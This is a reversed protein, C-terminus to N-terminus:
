PLVWRVTVTTHGKGQIRLVIRKWENSPAPPISITVRKPDSAQVMCPVGPLMGTVTGQNASGDQIEILDAGNVEGEWVLTGSSPGQYSPPPHADANPENEKHKEPSSEERERLKQQRALEEQRAQESARAAAQAEERRQAELAAQADSLRQQRALEEQKAQENAREAAQAEERRQAELAAQADSLRQQRALEEQRAQENAREAAQAEERRQAEIAAQADSLRRKELELEAQRQELTQALKAPDPVDGAKPVSVKSTPKNLLNTVFMALPKASAILILVIVAAIGFAIARSTATEPSGAVSVSIERERRARDKKDLVRESDAVAKHLVPRRPPDSDFDEPRIPM